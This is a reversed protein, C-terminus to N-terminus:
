VTDNLNSFGIRAICYSAKAWHSLCQIRTLCLDSKQLRPSPFQLKGMCSSFSCNSSRNSSNLYSCLPCTSVTPEWGYFQDISYFLLSSPYFSAIYVYVLISCTTSVSLARAMFLPYLVHSGCWSVSVAWNEMSLNAYSSLM